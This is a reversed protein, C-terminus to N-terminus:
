SGTFIGAALVLALFVVPVVLVDLVYISSFLLQERLGSSALRYNQCFNTKILYIKLKMSLSLSHQILSQM